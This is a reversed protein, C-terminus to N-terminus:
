SPYNMKFVNQFAVVRTNFDMRDTFELVACTWGIRCNHFDVNPPWNATELNDQVVVFDGTIPFGLSEITTEACCALRSIDQSGKEPDMTCEHNQFLSRLSVAKCPLSVKILPQKSSAISTWDFNWSHKKDSARRFLSTQLPPGLRIEVASVHIKLKM